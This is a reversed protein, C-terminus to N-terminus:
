KKTQTNELDGHRLAGYVVTDYIGPRDYHRARVWEAWSYTDSGDALPVARLRAALTGPVVLSRGKVYIELREPTLYPVERTLDMARLVDFTRLSALDDDLFLLDTAFKHTTGYMADLARGNIPHPACTGMGSLNVVLVTRADEPDTCVRRIWDRHPALNTSGGDWLALTVYPGPRATRHIIVAHNLIGEQAWYLTHIV